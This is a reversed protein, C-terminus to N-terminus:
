RRAETGLEGRKGRLHKSNRSSCHFCILGKNRSSHQPSARPLPFWGLTFTVPLPMFHSPSPSASESFIWRKNSQLAAAERTDVSPQLTRGRGAGGEKIQPKTLYQFPHIQKPHPPFITLFGGFIIVSNDGTRVTNTGTGRLERQGRMVGTEARYNDVTCGMESQSICHTRQTEQEPTM